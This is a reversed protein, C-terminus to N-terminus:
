VTSMDLDGFDHNIARGDIRWKEYKAPELWEGQPNEVIRGSYYPFDKFVHKVVGAVYYGTVTLAHAYRWNETQRLNTLQAPTM